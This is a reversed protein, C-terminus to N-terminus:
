PRHKLLTISITRFGQDIIDWEWNANNEWDPPYVDFEQYNLLFLGENPDLMRLKNRSDVAIQGDAM